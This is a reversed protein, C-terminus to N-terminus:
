AAEPITEEAPDDPQITHLPNGEEDTITIPVDPYFQQIPSTKGEEDKARRYTQDGKKRRRFQTIQATTTDLIHIEVQLTSGFETDREITYREGLKLTIPDLAPADATDVDRHYTSSALRCAKTPHNPTTTPTHPNHTAPRYQGRMRTEHKPTAPTRSTSGLM